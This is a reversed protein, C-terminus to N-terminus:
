FSEGGDESLIMVDTAKILATAHQGVQLNLEEASETTILAVMHNDGVQLSVKTAAKGKVVETIVGPLRNRTSAKM